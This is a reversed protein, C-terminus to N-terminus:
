NEEINLGCRKLWHEKWDNGYKSMLTKIEKISELDTKGVFSMAVKGIALNFLTSGYPTVCYYDRKPTADSIVAIQNDNLGIKKYIKSIESAKAKPNPLFIQTPCSEVIVDLMGSKEADTINQTDFAVFANKKRLQKLWKRIFEKGTEHSLLMWAESLAIMTPRGDLADEVRMFLYLLVPVAFKNGMAMLKDLEFCSFKSLSIDDVKSDMMEGMLGDVTYQKLADRIKIDQVEIVFDSITKDGNEDMNKLTRAIENRQEVTTIVGNLELITDIWELAWMKKQQTKLNSLPAIRVKDVGINFHKGDSGVCAPFISMGVDFVFIQSNRYRQFQLDLFASLTSKGNGTPGFIFTHGVDRIHFNFWFPTSGRTICRILPPADQDYMPCPAKNEGQYVSNVPLLTSLNMSDMVPRNVNEVGHGPFTGLLADVSNIVEIRATFGLADILKAIKVADSSVRKPDEGFIVINSTYYGQSKNGTNIDAIAKSNESVMGSAHEDVYTNGLEPFVQSILRKERQKWVGRFKELVSIAEPKDLFIFRTSWRYESTIETLANLKGAGASEPFGDIAVVQVYKDGVKPFIGPYFDSSGILHDLYLPMDPFRVPYNKGTTCLRIHELFADYDVGDVSYKKLRKINFIGSLRSDFLEVDKKFDELYKSNLDGEDTGGEETFMLDIFKKEAVEPPFWTLTIVHKNEYMAGVSEFYNRREEDVLEPIWSDFYSSERASYGPAKVVYSDVHIMWGSGMWSLAKNLRNRHSNRFEDTVSGIDAGSYEWAAMFSGNKGFIIGDSIMTGYVLLDAFGKTKEKRYKKLAYENGFDRLMIFFRICLALCLAGSIIPLFVYFNVM